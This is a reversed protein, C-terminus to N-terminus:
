NFMEIQHGGWRRIDGQIRLALNHARHREEGALRAAARRADRQTNPTADTRIDSTQMPDERRKGGDDPM